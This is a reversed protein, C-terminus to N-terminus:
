SIIPPLGQEALVQNFRALDSAAIEAWRLLSDMVRQRYITRIELMQDTPRNDSGSSYGSLSSLKAWLQRPWRITDQRASGGTLRLDFLGMELEILLQNLMEGANVIDSYGPDGALRDGLDELSKRTWEIRNILAGTSDSLERLELQLNLQAAMDSASASSEPDQLVELSVSQEEHGALVLTVQYVGPVALPRVVGGDPPPRWGSPGVERHSHELPRTRLRPTSSSEYRLDWFVRNLGSTGSTALTRVHQAM